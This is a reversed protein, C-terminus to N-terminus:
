APAVKQDDGAPLLEAMGRVFTVERDHRLHEISLGLDPPFLVLLGLAIPLWLLSRLLVQTGTFIVAAM